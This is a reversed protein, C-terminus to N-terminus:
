DGLRPRGPIRPVSSSTLRNSFPQQVTSGKILVGCQQARRVIRLVREVRRATEQRAAIPLTAKKTKPM